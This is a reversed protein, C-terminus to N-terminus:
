WKVWFTGNKSNDKVEYGLKVLWNYINSWDELCSTEYYEMYIVFDRRGEMAVQKIESCIGKKTAELKRLSSNFTATRADEATFIWDDM